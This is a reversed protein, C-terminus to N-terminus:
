RLIPIPSTLHPIKGGSKSINKIINEARQEEKELKERIERLKEERQRASEPSFLKSIEGNEM